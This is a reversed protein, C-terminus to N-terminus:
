PRALYRTVKESLLPTENPSLVTLEPNPIQSMPKQLLYSYGNNKFQFYRMQQPNYGKAELDLKGKGYRERSRYYRPQTKDKRDSCIYIRFNQTEAYVLIGGTGDCTKDGKIESLAGVKLMAVTKAITPPQAQAPLPGGSALLNLSTLLILVTALHQNPRNM